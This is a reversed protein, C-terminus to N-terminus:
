TPRRPPRLILALILGAVVFGATVYFGTVYNEYAPKPGLVTAMVIPLVVGGVGYASLYLGYNPGLNKAGFFYRVLTPM